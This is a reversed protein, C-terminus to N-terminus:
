QTFHAGTLMGGTLDLDTGFLSSSQTLCLFTVVEAIEQVTNVRKQFNPVTPIQEKTIGRALYVSNRMPTDVGGPSISNIQIGQPGYETAACKSMGIIAHKSTSYPSINKFGVHGSVSANNIIRGRIGFTGEAENKLLYPLEYKMSLFVGRTNTNMVEEWEQTSQEALGALKKNVVGANNFAANIRGYKSVCAEIFAKVQEEVRVDAQYYTAEGGGARIEREVKKGLNARRGNFFVSAGMTALHRATGEGIGSTAGTIVVVKGKLPQAAIVQGADKGLPTNPLPLAVGTVSVALSQIFAKRNM